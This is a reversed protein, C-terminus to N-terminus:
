NKRLFVLVLIHSKQSSLYDFLAIFLARSILLEPLLKFYWLQHVYQTCRLIILYKCIFMIQNELFNFSLINVDTFSKGNVQDLSVLTLWYSLTPFVKLVKNLYVLFKRGRQPRIELGQPSSNIPRRGMKQDKPGNNWRLIITVAM